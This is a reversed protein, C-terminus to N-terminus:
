LSKIQVIGDHFELNYQTDKKVKSKSTIPIEAAKMIAFGRKLVWKPDAYKVQNDIFTLQDNAKQLIFKSTQFINSKTNELSIKKSKIVETPMIQLWNTIQALQNKQSQIIHNVSQIINKSIELIDGEFFLNKDIIFNAVATPTKLNYAAVVDAVTNDIEHGIGTIVPLHSTAIKYAINFNDFAALDIKSGGGRIIIIADFKSIEANIADFAACIERETNSGQLAAQYLKVKIQYGYPNDQLHKIFDQYGAATESSIVAIKQLALPLKKSKNLNIIGEDTLRQLIKQRVMEIQGMTFAPDIDEINLKLGYREHFEVNVKIKVQTGEKLLSPLLNGLKNKLFLHTKYWINGNLQAIVEDSNEDKQVLDVYINGRSEKVQSIEGQVWIAESFNLAIVRRIYENLEFLTYSQM